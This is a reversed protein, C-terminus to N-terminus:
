PTEILANCWYGLAWNGDPSLLAPLEWAAYLVVSHGYGTPVKVQGATQEAQGRGSDSWLTLYDSTVTPVLWRTETYLWRQIPRDPDAPSSLPTPPTAGSNVTVLGWTVPTNMVNNPNVRVNSYGGLHWNFHCKTLTQGVDIVAVALYFLTLPQNEEVVRTWEFTGM